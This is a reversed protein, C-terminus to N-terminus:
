RRRVQCWQYPFNGQGIRARLTRCGSRDLELGYASLQADAALALEADAAAVDILSGPRAALRCRGGIEEVQLKLGRRELWRLTTCGPQTALGLRAAWRNIRVLREAKRDVAAPIMAFVESRQALMADLRMRYGVGEPFNSAVAAYVAHQPLFPVRWAQPEDGVLLVASDGPRSLAPVEVDFARPAWRTHGWDSWGALSVLACFAVVLAPWRCSAASTQLRRMGLWLLLPALVELVVLYRHISFIAQWFVYGAVFFVLVTRLAPPAAPVVARPRVAGIHRLGWRVILVAALLYLATWICQLLAVQGVRYPNATFVLPWALREGWNRPLWHADAVGVLSAMPSQFWHNFQPLLPNGFTTWMTWLWPGAAVTFVALAVVTMVVLGAVRTGAKGGDALAALGLAIAYAANTLKLAVALGLAAGALAWWLVSFGVRERQRRQAWLVLAVAALVFVATTNDAMTGGLESLFAASCLGAVGLLPALRPRHQDAPLVMWAIGAALPLLLGHFAGLAMAALMPPWHMLLGYHVLDLLPNFYSQMQAPALDIGVRGHLLAHANYLHYNRLDWNADQGLWLSAMACALTAAIVTAAVNGASRFAFRHDLWLGLRVLHRACRPSRPQVGSGTAAQSM